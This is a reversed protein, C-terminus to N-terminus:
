RHNDMSQPIIRGQAQLEMAEPHDQYFGRLVQALALKTEDCIPCVEDSPLVDLLRDILQAHLDVHDERWQQLLERLILPPLSGLIGLDNEDHVLLGATTGRDLTLVQLFYVTHYGLQEIYDEPDLDEQEELARQLLKAYTSITSTGIRRAFALDAEFNGSNFQELYFHSVGRHRKLAPIYFYRDGDESAQEYLSGAAVQLSQKFDETDTPNEIAPNLDAMIRWYGEGSKFETWSIHMHISPARPNDPHIICSLATASALKKEPLDAYHVHSFNLSASKFVGLSSAQFRTGGGHQGEDRQYGHLEFEVEEDLHKAVDKLHQRFDQQLWELMRKAQAAQASETCLTSM